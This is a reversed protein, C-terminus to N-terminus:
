TVERPSARFRERLAAKRIKGSGTRPLEPLLEVRKPTKYGALRERCFAMLVEPSAERGPRLVVAALVAEGWRADPVGVVAVELVAEHAALVHEVETSYVNEGGTLIMDKKRDVIDVYGEADWVALDGTCLWGETTFAAATEEPRNWYGPTVSEGRVQIEGVTRDDRPVTQGAEDVVRLEVTAFPRGTRARVRLEAEPPGGRLHPKPLSLTLYPSTETMGYTQVYECGFLAVLAGVLSPAIPAGGSLLLRMASLDWRTAEPHKAMLNLMSPVLNTVTVRERALADFAAEPSFRPVIVHCGGVWTIAFTAWADALHFLPAIHGWRDKPGLGLEAIAGLAHSWVNRHTLMVGKPRGTTGSTYYLQAVEDGGGPALTAGAGEGGDRTSGATAEEWTTTAAGLPGAPATAGGGTPAVNTWIVRELRAGAVATAALAREQEGDAIVWRAEADVLIAALEPPALRHNLPVLVTGAGAAAFYSVLYAGSNVGLYAVREGRGVGGATLFQALSRAARYLEAYSAESGPEALAPYSPFLDQARVLLSWLSPVPTRTM